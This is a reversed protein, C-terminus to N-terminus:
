SFRVYDVISHINVFMVPICTVMISWQTNPADTEEKCFRCIAHGQVPMTLEEFEFGITKFKKRCTPCLIESTM